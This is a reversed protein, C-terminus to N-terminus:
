LWSFTLVRNACPHDSQIVRLACSSFFWNALIWLHVSKVYCQLEPRVLWSGINYHLVYV